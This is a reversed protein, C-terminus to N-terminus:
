NQARHFHKKGCRSCAPIEQVTYMQMIQGCADCKLSGPGAVDGTDYGAQEGQEQWQMLELKTQDAAQMFMDLLTDEVLQVDIALWDSFEKGHEQMFEAADQLDRKLYDSVKMAEQQSLQELEAMKEGSEEIIERWAPASKKKLNKLESVTKELLKRYQTVLPNDTLSM